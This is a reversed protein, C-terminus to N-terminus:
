FGDDDNGPPPGADFRHPQTQRQDPPIFGPPPGVEIPGNLPPAAHKSEENKPHGPKTAAPPKAAEQPAINGSAPPEASAAEPILEKTGKCRLLWIDYVPHDLAHLSPSGAFMWGTFIRTYKNNADINDVEIFTDTQPAETPPRSYCVRETIQLSGFQVTENTGVEFTIIRGTIKDLGSFVAISHKIKDAAAPAIGLALCLLASLIVALRPRGAFFGHTQRDHRAREPRLMETASLHDIADSM